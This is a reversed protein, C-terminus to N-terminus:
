IAVTSFRCFSPRSLQPNVHPLLRVHISVNMALTEVGLGDLVGTVKENFFFYFVQLETSMSSKLISCEITIHIILFVQNPCQMSSFLFFFTAVNGM